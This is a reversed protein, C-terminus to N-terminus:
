LPQDEEGLHYWLNGLGFYAFGCCGMLCLKGNVEELGLCGSNLERGCGMSKSEKRPFKFGKIALNSVNYNTM